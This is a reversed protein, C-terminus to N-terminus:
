LQLVGIVSSVVNHGAAGFQGSVQPFAALLPHDWNENGKEPKDEGQSKSYLECKIVNPTILRCM